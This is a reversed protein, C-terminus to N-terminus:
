LLTAMFGENATNELIRRAFYAMGVELNGLPAYVRVPIDQSALARRVPEGLGYLVQFEPPDVSLEDAMRIVGAISEPNHTGCALSILDRNGMLYTVVSLFSQDTEHKQSFLPFEWGNQDAIMMETDWYAGKILRIGIPTSRQRATCVIAFASSQADTRYAQLAIGVHPYNRFEPLSVVDLFVEETLKCVQYDEADVTIHTDTEIAHRLLESFKGIVHQKSKRWNESSFHPFLSSLKVAVHLREGEVGAADMLAHYRSMHEEAEQLSLVKEGLVDIVVPYNPLKDENEIIFYPALHRTIVYRIVRGSIYQTLPYEALRMGQRAWMPLSDKSSGLYQVFYSAVDRPNKLAPLVDVFSLLQTRMKEGGMGLRLFYSILSFKPIKSRIESDWFQSERWFKQEKLANKM